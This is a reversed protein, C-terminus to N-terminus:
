ALGKETKISKMKATARELCLRSHFFGHTPGMNVMYGFKVPKQCFDCRRATTLNLARGMIEGM